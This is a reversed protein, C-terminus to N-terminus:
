GTDGMRTWGQPTVQEILGNMITQWIQADYIINRINLSENLIASKVMVIIKDFDWSMHQCTYGHGSLADM